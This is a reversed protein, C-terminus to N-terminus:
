LEHVDPFKTAFLNSLMEAGVDRKRNGFNEGTVSEALAVDAEDIEIVCINQCGQDGAIDVRGKTGLSSPSTM